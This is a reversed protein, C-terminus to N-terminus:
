FVLYLYLFEGSNSHLEFKPAPKDMDSLKVFNSAPQVEVNEAVTELLQKKQQEITAHLTEMTHQKKKPSNEAVEVITEMHKVAVPSKVVKVEEVNTTEIVIEDENLNNQFTVDDTDTTTDDDNSSLIADTMSGQSSKDYTENIKADKRSKRASGMMEANNKKSENSSQTNSSASQNSYSSLESKSCTFDDYPSIPSDISMSSTKSLLPIKDLINMIGKDSTVSTSRQYSNGTIIRRETQGENAWSHRKSEDRLVSVNTRRVIPPDSEIFMFCGKKDIEASKPVPNTNIEKKAPVPKSDEGGGIDIFMSFINKKDKEPEPKVVPPTEPKTLKPTHSRSSDNDSLDIYFGTSKKMIETTRPQPVPKRAVVIAKEDEPTKISGFDVYFGMGSRNHEISSVSKAQEKTDDPCNKLDVVWSKSTSSSRRPKEVPELDEEEFSMGGSVIPCAETRRRVHPSDYQRPTFDEISAGGSVIPASEDHKHPRKPIKIPNSHQEHDIESKEPIHAASNM